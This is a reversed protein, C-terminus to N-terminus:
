PVIRKIVHAKVNDKNYFWSKMELVNQQKFTVKKKQRLLFETTVTKAFFVSVYFSELEHFSKAKNLFLLLEIRPDMELPISIWGKKPHVRKKKCGFKHEAM